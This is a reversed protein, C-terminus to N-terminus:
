RYILSPALYSPAPSAPLSPCLSHTAPGPSALTLRSAPADLQSAPPGPSPQASRRPSALRHRSLRLAPVASPPASIRQSPTKLRRLRPAYRRANVVFLPGAPAGVGGPGACSRYSGHLALTFRAHERILVNTEPLGHATKPPPQIERLFPETELGPQMAVVDARKFPALDIRREPRENTESSPEAHADRREDSDGLSVASRRRRIASCRIAAGPSPKSPTSRLAPRPRGAPAPPTPRELPAQVTGATSPTGHDVRRGPRSRAPPRDAVRAIARTPTRIAQSPPSSASRRGRTFGHRQVQVVILQARESSPQM